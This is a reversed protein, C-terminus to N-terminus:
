LAAVELPYSRELLRQLVQVMREMPLQGPAPAKSMELKAMLKNIPISNYIQCAAYFNEMSGLDEESFQMGQELAKYIITLDMLKLDEEEMVQTLFSYQFSPNYTFVYKDKLKLEIAAKFDSEEYATDLMLEYSIKHYDQAKELDELDTQRLFMVQRGQNGITVGLLRDTQPKLGNTATAVLVIKDPDCFNNLLDSFIM